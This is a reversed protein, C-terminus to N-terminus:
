RAHLFATREKVINQLVNQDGPAGSGKLPPQDSRLLIKETAITEGKAQIQKVLDGITQVQAQVLEKGFTMYAIKEAADPLYTRDKAFLSNGLENTMIQRVREVASKDMKPNGALMQAISSEVSASFQKQRNDIASKTNTQLNVYDDHDAKYKLKVVDMLADQVKPDLADLTEKTYSNGTYHNILDVEDHATVPKEFDFLAKQQLKQIIPMYDEGNIAASLILSVDKPLNDLTNKYTDNVQRLQAAEAANKQLDKIQGFVPVFDQVTKIEVGAVDRAFASVDEFSTLKVDAIPVGGFTQDGLPSKVVVPPAVQPQDAVVPTVPAAAVVSTVPAVVIPAAPAAVVKAALEQAAKSSILGAASDIPNSLVREGDSSNKSVNRAM